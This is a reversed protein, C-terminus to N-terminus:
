ILIRIIAFYVRLCLEKKFFNKEGARPLHRARDDAGGARRDHDMRRRPEARAPNAQFVSFKLASKERNEHLIQGM